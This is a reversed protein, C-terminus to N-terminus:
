KKGAMYIEMERAYREKDKNAMQVYKEKESESLNKWQRGIEDLLEPQSTGCPMSAQIRSRNETCFYIYASTSKQPPSPPTTYKSQTKEGNKPVQDLYSGM